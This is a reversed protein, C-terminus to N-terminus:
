QVGDIGQGGRVCWVFDDQNKGNSSVNGNTLIEGLAESTLFAHTTASWYFGTKQGSTLTFPHGTPLAPSSNATNALSELEEITPLRWGKRGGLDLDDCHNLANFWTSTSTSPSQEWVRGTEQDLVAANGFQKLVKFRVPTNIQKEWTKGPDAGAVAASVIVAVLAIVISYLSKM